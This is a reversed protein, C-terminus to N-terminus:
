LSDLKQLLFEVKEKANRSQKKMTYFEKMRGAFVYTESLAQRDAPELLFSYKRDGHLTVRIREKPDASAIFALVGNETDHKFTLYEWCVGEDTFRYNCANDLGVVATTVYLDGAKVEVQTHNLAKGCYVSVLDVDGNEYM